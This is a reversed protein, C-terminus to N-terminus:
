KKVVMQKVIAQRTHILVLYTGASLDSMDIQDFGSNLSKFLIGSLSYVEVKQVDEVSSLSLISSVPNPYVLVKPTTGRDDMGVTSDYALSMYYLNATTNKTIEHDGEELHIELIGDAINHDTGNLKIKGSYGTNFVLTITAAKDISFQISTASEIKLCQTLTLGDYVVAGKSDSLNGSISYFTSNLGSLTFNHIVDGPNVEGGGDGGDGPDGDGPDSGGDGSGEGQVAVLETQYNVLAAKLATNVSSAADDVANNFSWQFDGGFMRGAYQMVTNRADEPSQASYAYMAADTDFNNYAHGGSVTTVDSPVQDSKNAVVYADFDNPFAKQDVFRAEGVIHNNYAKIMGGPDGSFTNTNSGYVDSGQNSILMPYKCNRFYNGEAFVSGATTNGIGYKSIGDFYNNYVHVTHQRVRPHRSDSHDYWNHHYTFNGVEEGGNGLLNSKGSDWFHNFSFTANTSKKADLAGDGKDQDADGGAAGYFFDNHHIWIHDNNQQLGINDGENSNCNMTALNRVEINSANKIRIGWGDAVADDGIGELTIFGNANNKNEIVIDGGLMYTLDTIQGILRVILPRNDYGKKFGDLIEQLGVCPNANAGTVDLSVTNKTHETIYLIVAESKPTGDAQCAGPVRGNVFAFGSRDHAEVTLETSEAVAGEVGDVVAAVKFIYTGAKLGVADARFYTGYSRILPDDLKQDVLGEGSLYVNYSDAGEVPAWKVYASELWGDADMVDVTQAQFPVVSLFLLFFIFPLKM